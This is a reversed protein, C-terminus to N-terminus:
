KFPLFNQLFFNSFKEYLDLQYHAIPESCTLILTQFLCHKCIDENNNLMRMRLDFLSQM